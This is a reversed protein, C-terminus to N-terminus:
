SLQHCEPGPHGEDGGAFGGDAFALVLVFTSFRKLVVGRVDPPVSSRIATVCSKVRYISLFLSGGHRSLLVAGRSCKGYLTLGARFRASKSLVVLVELGQSGAM